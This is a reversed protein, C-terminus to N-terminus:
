ETAEIAEEDEAKEDNSLKFDDYSGKEIFDISFETDSNRTVEVSDFGVRELLDYTVVEGQPIKFVDRLLWKGLASNPDSMLAKGGQQCVKASIRTKDPLILMFKQDKPPFFGDFSRHIWAPIPIYMEDMNRVRGGANWLNLGSKEHVIKSGKKWSFLPLVLSEKTEVAQHGASISEALSVLTTLPDELISVPISFAINESQFRRYLTSKSVNFSYERSGDTFYIVGQPRSVDAINPISILDMPSEHVSIEAPSRVICHYIMSSIGNMRMTTELRINRLESVKIVMEKDSLSAFLHHDGNFEAIKERSAGNKKLFTKIGIGVDGKRADASIDHRSLDDASFAKCFLKEAIHYEIYPSDSESFLRSLSGVLLLMKKYYDIQGPEQSDIFM